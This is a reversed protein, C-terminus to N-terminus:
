RSVRWPQGRSVVVVASRENNPQALFVLRIKRLGVVRM